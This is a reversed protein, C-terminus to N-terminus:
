FANDHQKRIKDIKTNTTKLYPDIEKKICPMSIDKVPIEWVSVPVYSVAIQM